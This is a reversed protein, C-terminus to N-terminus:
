SQMFKTVFLTTCFSKEFLGELFDPSKVVFNGVPSLLGGRDAQCGADTFTGHSSQRHLSCGIDKLAKM